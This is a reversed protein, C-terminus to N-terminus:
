HNVRCTAAEEILDVDALYSSFSELNADLEGAIQALEALSYALTKHERLTDSPAHAPSIRPVPRLIWEPQISPPSPAESWVSHIIEHRLRAFALLYTLFTNIRDYRDLPINLHRLLDLVAMRKEEFSQGRTLIVISDTQTGLLRATIRAILLEHAAFTQLIEGFLSLHRKDPSISKPEPM